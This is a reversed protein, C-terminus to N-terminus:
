VSVSMQSHLVVQLLESGNDRNTVTDGSHETEGLDLSTLHDLELRSNLAHSEVQFCVVDTNDDKAGISLDLLAVNDLSGAGNDIDGNALAHETANDVGESVGDVSLAWDLSVFTGSDLQFCWANDRSFGHM